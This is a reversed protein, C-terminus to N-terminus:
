VHHPSARTQNFYVSEEQREHRTASLSTLRSPVIQLRSTLQALTDNDWVGMSRISKNREHVGRLILVAYVASDSIHIGVGWGYVTGGRAIDLSRVCMSMRWNCRHVHQSVCM